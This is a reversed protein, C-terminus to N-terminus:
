IYCYVQQLCRLIVVMSIAKIISILHYISIISNYARIQKSLNVFRLKREHRKGEIDRKKIYCFLFLFLFSMRSFVLMFARCMMNEDYRIRAASYFIGYIKLKVVSKFRNETFIHSISSRVNIRYFEVNISQVYM